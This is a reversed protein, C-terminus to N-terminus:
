RLRRRLGLARVLDVAGIAALLAGVAAIVLALDPVSLFLVSWGPDGLLLAFILLMGLGLVLAAGAIRLRGPVNRRGPRAVLALVAALAAILLAVIVDFVLYFRKMSWGEDPDEGLLISAAGASIRDLAGAAGPLDIEPTANYLVTLGIGRDPFLVMMSGFDPSGGPHFVAPEDGFVGSGSYLGMGYAVDGGKSWPGVEAEAAPTEM